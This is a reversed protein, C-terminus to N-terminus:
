STMAIDIATEIAKDIYIYIITQLSKRADVIYQVVTPYHAYLIIGSGMRRYATIELHLPM